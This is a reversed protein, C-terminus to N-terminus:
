SHLSIFHGALIYYIPSLFALQSALCDWLVFVAMPRPNGSLILDSLQIEFTLYAVFISKTDTHRLYQRKIQCSGRYEIESKIDEQVTIFDNKTIQNLIDVSNLIFVGFKKKAYIQQVKLIGYIKIEEKKENRLIYSGYLVLPSQVKDQKSSSWLNNNVM